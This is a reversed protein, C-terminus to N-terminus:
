DIPERLLAVHPSMGPCAHVAFHRFGTSLLVGATGIFSAAILFAPGASPGSSHVVAHGDVRRQPSQSVRVVDVNVVAEPHGGRGPQASEADVPIPGLALRGVCGFCPEPSRRSPRGDAPGFRSTSPVAMSGSRAPLARRRARRIRSRPRNAPATAASCGWSRERSSPRHDSRRWRAHRRLSRPHRAARGASRPRNRSPGHPGGSAEM